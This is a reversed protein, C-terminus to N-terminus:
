LGITPPTKYDKSTVNSQSDILVTQTSHTDLVTEIEVYQFLANTSADALSAIKLKSVIERRHFTGYTTKGRTIAVHVAQDFQDQHCITITMLYLKILDWFGEVWYRPLVLNAVKMFYEKIILAVAFGMAVEIFIEAHIRPVTGNDDVGLLVM